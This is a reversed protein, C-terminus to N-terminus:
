TNITGNKIYELAPELLSNEIFGLMLNCRDCLIGRVCKGCTKGKGPCCSHDHDVCFKSSEKKCIACVGGQKAMIQDFQEPTLGYLYKLKRTRGNISEWEKAKTLKNKRYTKNHLYRSRDQAQACPKCVHHRGYKRGEKKWFESLPKTVHCNFCEKEEM